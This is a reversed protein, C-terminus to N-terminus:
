RPVAPLLDSQHRGLYDALSDNKLGTWLQGAPGDDLYVVSQDGEQGTGRVPATLFNVGGQGVGRMSFALSRIDGDTLGADVTVARTMADLLKYAQVPDSTPDVTSVKAMVARIMNQQRKVRDFDGQPLGHRQRVYQLARAGNFHNLGKRFVAGTGESDVTTQPIQIDIGGIADIISRFGYFDVVAFHDVRVDTLDEITRILLPPGGIAYAANIKNRGHGPIDVWSDRPISIVAASKRDDPIHMLMISDTRQAYPKFTKNKAARGTTPGDDRSDTGVLLFTLSNKATAPKSPRQEENIGAFTDDIRAVNGTVKNVLVYASASVAGLVVVVFTVSIVV